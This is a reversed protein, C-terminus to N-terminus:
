DFPVDKCGLNCFHHELVCVIDKDERNFLLTM